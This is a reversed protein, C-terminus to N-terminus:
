IQTQSPKVGERSRLKCVVKKLTTKRSNWFTNWRFENIYENRLTDIYINCTKIHSDRERHTYMSQIVRLHYSLHDRKRDNCAFCKAYAEQYM